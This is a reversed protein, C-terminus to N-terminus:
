ADVLAGERRLARYRSWSFYANSAAHGLGTWYINGTFARAYGSLLAGPLIAALMDKVPRNLHYFAWATGNVAPRWPGLWAMRSWLLGRWYCEEAVINLPLHRFLFHAYSRDLSREVVFPTWNLLRGAPHSSAREARAMLRPTAFVLTIVSSAICAAWSLPHHRKQRPPWLGMEEPLKRLGKRPGHDILVNTVLSALDLWLIASVYGRGQRGGVPRALLAPLLCCLLLRGWGYSLASDQAASAADDCIRGTM